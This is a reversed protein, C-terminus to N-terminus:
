AKCFAIQDHLNDPVSDGTTLLLQVSMNVVYACPSLDAVVFTPAATGFRDEPTAPAVPAPLNFAYPGGPGSMSITVTGLTPHAATFVVDLTDTIETCGGGASLQSIDVMAVGLQNSLTVPMWAPHRLINNYRSNNIAIHRCLGAQVQPGPTVERVMMRIAFRRNQVLPQGTSTSSDGTVLGTLDVPPFPSLTGTQLRIMDGNPQFHGSPGFVDNEQPVRIWGNVISAVLENPGPTGNVTYDKTKVPNPDGPFAPAYQQWTGIKTRAIQGPAVSTWAGSFAGSSDLERTEFRYEMPNGNLRKPLVGNLRTNAYFARGSASTLGDQAADSNIDTLFNYGGVHTFVPLPDAQTPVDEDVCLEVCLCHGVNERDPQRGRSPPEVLLPTGALTDVRFYIDPGGIWEVDLFTGPKFDAHTYEIRFRGTADTVASGLEDDQLWDRDFATAKVGGIPHGTDCHVVRGCIVWAGLRSLIWCWYRSHICHDWAAVYGSESKRWRPQLTTISFQLPPDASPFALDIEFAEGDYDDRDGLEFVVRGQEDTTAEAILSSAKAAAAEEDLPSFTNKPNASALATVDNSETARYLRVVTKKLPEPCAHCVYGCLRLTFTYM